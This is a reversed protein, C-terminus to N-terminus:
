ASGFLTAPNRLLIKSRDGADPVWDGLWRLTEAYSWRGEFQTHPWDSGWLIRHVGVTELIRASCTAASGDPVRYPASFKFWLRDSRRAARLLSDFGNKSQAPTTRGFHDIVVPGPPDSLFAEMVPWQDGEAQIQLAMGLSALHHALTRHSGGFDPAPKGICNLRVGVVGKRRLIALDALPMEPDVVAIGSFRDPRATIAALLCANDTGLFSPQVLLARAVGAATMVDLLHEPLAEYHPAYRRDAALTGDRRFIHVHTDVWGTATAQTPIM